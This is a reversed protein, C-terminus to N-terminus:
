GAARELGALVYIAVEDQDDSKCGDVMYANLVVEAPEPVIYLVMANRADCATIAPVMWSSLEVSTESLEVSTDTSPSTAPIMTRMMYQLGTVIVRAYLFYWYQSQVKASASSVQRVM